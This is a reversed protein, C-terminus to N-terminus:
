TLLLSLSWNIHVFWFLWGPICVISQNMSENITRLFSTIDPRCDILWAILWRRTRRLLDSGSVSTKAIRRATVVNPGKQWANTSGTSSNIFSRWVSFPAKKVRSLAQKTVPNIASTPAQPPETTMGKSQSRGHCTDEKRSWTEQLGM